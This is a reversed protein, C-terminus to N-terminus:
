FYRAFGIRGRAPIGKARAAMLMLVTVDRCCGVLRQQAPRADRLSGAQLELLRSLMRDGYRSDIERLREAPVGAELPREDRHQEEVLRSPARHREHAPVHAQRHGARGAGIPLAGRGPCDGTSVARIRLRHPLSAASSSWVLLLRPRSGARYQAATDASFMSTTRRM